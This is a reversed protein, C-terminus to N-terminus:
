HTLEFIDYQNVTRNADLVLPELKVVELMTNDRVGSTVMANKFGADAFVTFRANTDINEFFCQTIVKEEGTKKDLWPRTAQGLYRGVVKSGVELDSLKLIEATIKQRKLTKSTETQM